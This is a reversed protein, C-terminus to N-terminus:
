QMSLRSPIKNVSPLSKLLAFNPYKKHPFHTSLNLLNKPTQFHLISQHEILPMSQIQNLITYYQVTFYSPTKNQQPLTQNYSYMPINKTTQTAIDIYSIHLNPYKLHHNTLVTVRINHACVTSSTTNNCRIINQPM